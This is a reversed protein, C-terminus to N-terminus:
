SPYTPQTRFGLVFSCGRHSCIQGGLSVGNRSMCAAVAVSPRGFYLNRQQGIADRVQGLVELDVLLVVVAASAQQHEYTTAAPQEIIEGADIDLAVAGDDGFESQPALLDYLSLHPRPGTGAAM